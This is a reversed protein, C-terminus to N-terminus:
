RREENVQVEIFAGKSNAIVHWVVFGDHTRCEFMRRHLQAWVLLSDRAGPTHHEFLTVHAYGIEDLLFSDFLAFLLQRRGIPESVTRSVAISENQM